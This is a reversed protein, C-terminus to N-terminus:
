SPGAYSFRVVVVTEVEIPKGDLTFPKYKWQRVADMSAGEYVPNTSSVVSVNRVSGDTKIIARVVVLGNGSHQVKAMQPFLPDKSSILNGVVVRDRDGASVIPPVVEPTEATVTFESEPAAGGSLSDVQETAVKNSNARVIAGVAVEKGQFQGLVARDIEQSSFNLSIRLSTGGADVCYTPFAGLAFSGQVKAPRSEICDLEVKNATLKHLDADGKESPYFPHVVQERLLELYYPPLDMGATRYLKGGTRIETATYEKTKYERRDEGPSNWWEEISGQDSLQGKADFLQATMKLHWPKMEATDLASGAAATHLRQILSAADQNPKPADQGRLTTQVLFPLALLILCARRM